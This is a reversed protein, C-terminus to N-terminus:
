DEFSSIKDWCLFFLVFIVVSIKCILEFLGLFLLRDVLIYFVMFWLDLKGLCVGLGGGGFFYIYVELVFLFLGRERELYGFGLNM